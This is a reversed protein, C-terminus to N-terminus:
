VNSFAGHYKIIGTAGRLYGEQLEKVMFVDEPVDYECNIDFRSSPVFGFRPYYGPHGLVVVAGFNLKECEKLGALVLKTGIGKRQQDPLVAMPALGMIKLDTHGTLVAPSFMIYGVIEGRDDAVLSITPQAQQRLADVLNAETATDFASENVRRVREIDGVREKRIQVAHRKPIVTMHVPGLTGSYM